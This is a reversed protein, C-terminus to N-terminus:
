PGVYKGYKAAFLNLDDSDVDDDRDLDALWNYGPEGVSTGYAVALIYLDYSDASGNGDMDGLFTFIGDVSTHDIPLVWEGDYRYLETKGFHLPSVGEGTVECIVTALTGDGSAGIVELPFLHWGVIVTGLSNDVEYTVRRTPGASQLFPGEDVGPLPPVVAKITYNRGKTGSTINWLFAFTQSEGPDLSGTANGVLSPWAYARVEFSERRYGQPNNQVTVNIQVTENQFAYVTDPDFVVNTVIVDRVNVYSSTSSESATVVSDVLVNDATDTEGALVETSSSLASSASTTNWITINKSAIDWLEETDTVNLTVTYNRHDGGGTWAYTHNVVMGYENPEGDGFDWFYSGPDILDGASSTSTSADHTLSQSRNYPPDPSITFRAQPYNKVWVTGNAVENNTTNTEELVNLISPDFSMNFAWACLSKWPKVDSVNVNIHLLDGPAASSIPPDVFVEPGPSSMGVNIMTSGAILTAMLTALMTMKLLSKRVRKEEKRERFYDRILLLSGRKHVNRNVNQQGVKSPKEIELM